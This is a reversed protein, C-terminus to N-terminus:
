FEIGEREIRKMVTPITEKTDILDFNVDELIEELIGLAKFYGNVSLGEVALDIDSDKRFNGTALSGFLIVRKAGLDKIKQACLRVKKILIGRKRDLEEVEKKRRRDWAERYRKYTETEMPM